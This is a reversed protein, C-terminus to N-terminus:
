SDTREWGANVDTAGEPPPRGSGFQVTAAPEVHVVTPVTPGPDKTFRYSVPGTGDHVIRRRWPGWDITVTRAVDDPATVTIWVPGTYSTPYEHEWRPRRGEATVEGDEIEGDEIERDGAPGDGVTDTGEPGHLVAAVAGAVVLAGVVM